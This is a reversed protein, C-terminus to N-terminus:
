AWWRLQSRVADIGKGYGLAILIAEMLGDTEMHFTEPDTDYRKSLAVVADHFEGARM